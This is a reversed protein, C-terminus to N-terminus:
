LARTRHFDREPEDGITSRRKEALRDMVDDL